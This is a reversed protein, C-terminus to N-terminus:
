KEGREILSKQILSMNYKAVFTDYNTKVAGHFDSM